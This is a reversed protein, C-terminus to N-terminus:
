PSEVITIIPEAFPQGQSTMVGPASVQVTGVILREEKQNIFLSSMKPQVIWQAKLEGAYQQQNVFDSNLHCNLAGAIELAKLSDVVLYLNPYKKKARVGKAYVVSVSTCRPSFGKEAFSKCFVEPREYPIEWTGASRFQSDLFKPVPKQPNLLKWCYIATM